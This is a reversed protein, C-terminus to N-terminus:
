VEVSHIQMVIDAASIVYTNTAPGHVTMVQKTKSHYIDVPFVRGRITIVPCNNFYSSFKQTDLTASAIILKLDSRKSCIMKLLGFLVDTHISREHAEDLMIVQYKSLTSDYLCERVLIGDTMFKIRTTSSTRDDFRISYGVEEGVKQGREQSVREAVTVAAVRRPQTIAIKKDSPVLNFDLCFQPIQTTKGSGTEGICIVIQNNQISKILEKKFGIVPLTDFDKDEEREM